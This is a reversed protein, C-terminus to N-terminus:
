EPRVRPLDCTGVRCPNARGGTMGGCVRFSLPGDLSAGRQEGHQHDAARPLSEPLIFCPTRVARNKRYQQLKFSLMRPQESRPRPKVKM